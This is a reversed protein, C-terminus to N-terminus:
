NLIGTNESHDQEIILM